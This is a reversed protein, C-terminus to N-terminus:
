QMAGKKLRLSYVNSFDIDSGTIIGIIEGQNKYITPPINVSNEFSTKALEAFADRSNETYDTNRDKKGSSNTIANAFDPIMGLMASGLFRESFHTDIWGDIGAEGLQGVVQADIMPIKISNPQPTRLETWIVFMRGQGHRLTGTKYRGRALTGAPILPVNNSASYVDESIICSIGGAVDSVFRNILTCPIYTDVPIYMDPNLKLRSVTTTVATTDSESSQPAAPSSTNIGTHSAKEEERTTETNAHTASTQANNGVSLALSKNLTLPQPQPPAQEVESTTTTTEKNAFPNTAQGLDKRESMAGMIPEKVEEAQKEPRDRLFYRYARDAGWAAVILGALLIICLTFVRNKNRKKLVLVEPQGSKAEKNVASNSREEALRQRTEAEIEAVTKEENLQNEDTM